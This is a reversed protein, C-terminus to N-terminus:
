TASLCTLYIEIVCNVFYMVLWTLIGTTETHLFSLGQQETRTPKLFLDSHPKTPLIAEIMIWSFYFLNFWSAHILKITLYAEYVATISVIISINHSFGPHHTKLRM